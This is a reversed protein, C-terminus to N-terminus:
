GESFLAKLKKTGRDIVQTAIISGAILAGAGLFGPASATAFAAVVGIKIL